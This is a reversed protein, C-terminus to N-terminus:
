ILTPKLGQLNYKRIWVQKWVKKRLGDLGYM